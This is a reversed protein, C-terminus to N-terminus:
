GERERFIRFNAYSFAIMILATVFSMAAASGQLNREFGERYIRLMVPETAGGGGAQAPGGNTMIFPQIFLNFSAIISTVIIFILVPRLLPLTIRWFSQAGTAGDISAAEYVYDPIDQLAALLIIMNFGCTWWVTCVVVAVWAWPMTSLWRPATLGADALYHNILGGQSQFIWWWLLAVVAGSLAWPAFYIARFINSGRIRTNLLLALGLPIVVLFPVSYVVFEMTNILSNWFVQYQVVNPTFLNVYNQLGVFRNSEPRLYDYQMFSIYLGNFFPYGVFISFVLLHPLIFLYPTINPGSRPAAGATAAERRRRATTAM